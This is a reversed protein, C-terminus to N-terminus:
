PTRATRIRLPTVNGPVDRERDDAVPLVREDVLEELVYRADAGSADREDDGLVDRIRNGQVQTAGLPDDIRLDLAEARVVVGSELAAV